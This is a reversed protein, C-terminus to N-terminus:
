RPETPVGAAAHVREGPILRLRGLAALFRTPIMPSDPVGSPHRASSLLACHTFLCIRARSGNRDIFPRISNRTERLMSFVFSM